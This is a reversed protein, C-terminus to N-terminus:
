NLREAVIRGLEILASERSPADASELHLDIVKRNQVIKFRLSGDRDEYIWSEEGLGPERAGLDRVYAARQTPKIAEFAEDDAAIEFVLYFSDNAPNSWSCQFNRVGPLLSRGRATAFGSDPDPLVTAVQESTLMECPALSDSNSNSDGAAASNGAATDTANGCGTMLVTLTLILGWKM